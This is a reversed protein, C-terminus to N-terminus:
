KGPTAKDNRNYYQQRYKKPSIHFQKKFQTIFYSTNAFGVANAIDAISSDTSVILRESENIRVFNLYETFGMGVASNFFRSFYSSSMNVLAAMKEAKINQSFDKNLIELVPSLKVLKESKNSFTNPNTNLKEWQRLVWLSIQSLSTRIALRYLPTPKEYELVISQIQKPIDTSDIVSAKFLHSDAVLDNTFPLHFRLEVTSMIGSFIFSPDVQICIYKCGKKREFSHVESPVIVFMDGATGTLMKNNVTVKLEGSFIYIIEIYAHYHSEIIPRHYRDTRDFDSVFCFFDNCKEQRVNEYLVGTSSVTISDSQM